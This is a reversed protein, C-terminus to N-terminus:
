ISVQIAGDHGTPAKPQAATQSLGREPRLRATGGPVPRGLKKKNVFPGTDTEM